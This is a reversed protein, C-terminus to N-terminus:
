RTARRRRRRRRLPGATRRISVSLISVSTPAGPAAPQVLDALRAVHEGAACSIPRSSPSPSVAAAVVPVPRRVAGATAAGRRQRRGGAARGRGCRGRRRDRRASPQERRGVGPPDGGLEADVSRATRPCRGRRGSRRRPRRPRGPRRRAAAGAVLPSATAITAARLRASRSPMSRARRGGVRDLAADGAVTDGCTRWSRARRACAARGGRACGVGAGARRAAGDSVGSSWSGVSVIRSGPHAPVIALRICADSCSIACSVSVISASM